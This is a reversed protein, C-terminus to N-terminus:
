LCVFCFCSSFFVLLFVLSLSRLLNRSFSFWSAFRACAAVARGVAACRREAVSECPYNSPVCGQLMLMLESGPMSLPPTWVEEEVVRGARAVSSVVNSSVALHSSAFPAARPLSARMDALAVLAYAASWAGPALERLTHELSSSNKVNPLSHLLGVLGEVDGEAVCPALSCRLLSEVYALDVGSDGVLGSLSM